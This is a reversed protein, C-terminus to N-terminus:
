GCRSSFAGEDFRIITLGVWKLKINEFSITMALRDLVFEFVNCAKSKMLLKFCLISLSPSYTMLRALIRTKDASPM